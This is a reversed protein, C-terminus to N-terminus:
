YDLPNGGLPETLELQELLNIVVAVFDSDTIIGKLKGKVVVPLCGYKHAQLLLAAQRLNMKEDVVSLKTTMIQKLPISAEFERSQDDQVDALKPMSAALLDRQTVLGVLTGADDVIPLHRIDKETMLRRAEQATDTENLTYIETTMVEKVSIM